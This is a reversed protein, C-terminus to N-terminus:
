TPLVNLRGKRRHGNPNEELGPALNTKAHAAQLHLHRGWCEGLGSAMAKVWDRAAARQHPWKAPESISYNKRKV